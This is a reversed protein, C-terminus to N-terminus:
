TDDPPQPRKRGKVQPMKEDIMGELEVAREGLCVRPIIWAYIPSTYIYICKRSRAVKYIQEWQVTVEKDGQAAKIGDADVSYRLPLKFGPNLKVQKVSKLFLSWPTYALVVIGGGLMWINGSQIYLWGLALGIVVGVWGNVGLYSQRLMFRYLTGVTMKVEFKM